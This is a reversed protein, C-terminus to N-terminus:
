SMRSRVARWRVVRGNGLNATGEIRDGAVRGTFRLLEPGQPLVFSINAGNLHTELLAARSHRLAAAGEFKQYRQNLTLEYEGEGDIQMRWVGDVKAPVTWLYLTATPVGSIMEKEPVDFAIEADHQWEDFHYDHSVVRAGPQLEAYLKSRLRRMMEPLLYLTVVTAKSVDAKFIDKAEFAVRGGLGLSRARQNSQRVLEEDIDVGYGSAKLRQAATLVIIGDGSGLDIVHDQAGVGALGLMQEVVLNPTPVYPGGTREYEPPVVPQQQAMAACAWVLGFVTFFRQWNGRM